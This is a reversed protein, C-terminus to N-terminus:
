CDKLCIRFAILQYNAKGTPSQTTIANEAEERHTRPPSPVALGTCRHGQNQRFDKRGSSGRDTCFVQKKLSCRARERGRGRDTSFVQKKLTCRARERGHHTCFAAKKM